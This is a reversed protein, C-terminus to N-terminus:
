APPSHWSHGPPSKRPKAFNPRVNSNAQFAKNSVLFLIGDILFLSHTLCNFSTFHAAGISPLFLLFLFKYLGDRHYHKYEHEPCYANEHQVVELGM